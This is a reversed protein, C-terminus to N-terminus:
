HGYKKEIVEAMLKILDRERYMPHKNPNPPKPYDCQKTIIKESM